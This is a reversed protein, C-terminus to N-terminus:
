GQTGVIGKTKSIIVARPGPDDAPDAPTQKPRVQVVEVDSEDGEGVADIGAIPEEDEADDGLYKKRLDAMSPGPTTARRISDAAAAAAPKEVVEMEPLNEKVVEKASKRAM